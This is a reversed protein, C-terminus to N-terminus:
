EDVELGALEMAKKMNDVDTRREDMPTEMVMPVERLVSNLIMRFGEEGINGLGIATGIMAAIMGWHSNWTERNKTM